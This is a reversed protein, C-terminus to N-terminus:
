GNNLEKEYETIIENIRKRMYAGCTVSELRRELEALSVAKRHPCQDCVDALCGFPRLDNVVPCPKLASM